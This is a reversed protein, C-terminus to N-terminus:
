VQNYAAASGTKSATSCVTRVFSIQKITFAIDPRTTNALFQLEGLLRAYSNSRDEENRNPNSELPTNPNLPMGVPNVRKLGEKELINEIYKKQSITVSCENIAIEIGIIKSPEGLKTMQWESKVNDEMATM